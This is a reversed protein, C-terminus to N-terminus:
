AMVQQLVAISRLEGMGEVHLRYYVLLQDLLERRQNHPLRPSITDTLESGLLGALATSLPPTLGHGSPAERQVFHGELLDFNTEGAGPSAPFFGLHGSLKLLFVLPFHSLDEARDVVDTVKHVFQFLDRDSSEERLSRLLIEQVFLILSSRLPDGHVHLYPAEVRLERVQHLDRDHREDVVLEVRSLAQVQGSTIGKRRSFQIVYARLGFRETYATVVARSDGHRVTRLVIARTTQLM